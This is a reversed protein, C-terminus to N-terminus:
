GRVAAASVPIQRGQESSERIADILRHLDVATEFTANSPSVDGSRIARAFRTYLQGVNYPAGQPTNEPVYRYRPPIELPELNGNARTGQLHVTGLQPSEASTAVLTGERGYIELRYGSGAWPISAVHVSAVAGSTLQGSVLINDPATVDVLRQTDVELWQPVQTTVVAAVHRFDGLMFRM